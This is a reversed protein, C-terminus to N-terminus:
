ERILNVPVFKSDVVRRKGGEVVVFSLSWEKPAFKQMEGICAEQKRAIDLLADVAEVASWFVSCSCLGVHGVTIEPDLLDVRLYPDFAEEEEEERYSLRIYAEGASSLSDSLSAAQVFANIEVRLLAACASPDM